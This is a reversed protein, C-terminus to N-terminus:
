THWKRTTVKFSPTPCPLVLYLLYGQLVMIDTSSMFKANILAQQTAAHFRAMLVNKDEDFRNQVEEEPLSLVATFYIGFMLAELGEPIKTPNAGAEIIQGQLTPIHSIKLLPNVNNIYVQWLQFIQIAPPHLDTVSSNGGGVMFPFGDADGYM